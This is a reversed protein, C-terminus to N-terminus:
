YVHVMGYLFTWFLVYTFLGSVFGGTAIARRSRAARRWDSGAKAVLALALGGAALAYFALGRVGTLGLVGASSGALAAGATRCYDLLAANSRVAADSLFAPGERRRHHHRHQQHQQHQQQQQSPPPQPPPQQQQQASM